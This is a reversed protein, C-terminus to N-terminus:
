GGFLQDWAALVLRRTRYEGHAKIDKEKLVRFTESPYDSGMVDAPDLIYRLENRSLGYAHAYFADLEARLRARREENWPFPPGSHGLDKAWPPLAHSTYTLELIRPLIFNIAVEGYASPPLVPLQKYIFLSMDTGGIKQRACFDYVLCSLNALLLAIRKTDQNCEPLMLPMKHSVGALPIVTAIVTRKNRAKTTNRWGVLWPRNWGQSDLLATVEEVPVWYRPIPEWHPNAKQTTTADETKGSDTFSAWRHDLQHIMKAEYLPLYRHTRQPEPASTKDGAVWGTGDPVYGEDSLATATRFHNSDSTMNFLGQRFGIGWPNGQTGKREDILIPVNGYIRATLEGDLRSRFVPATRTNPNIAIIQQPSLTFSCGADALQAPDTLFFAFQAEEEQHGITLLCFKISRHVRTFLGDRNEFDVLSALRNGKILHAFFSLLTQVDTAIGTQVVVGVRTVASTPPWSPLYPMTHIMSAGDPSPFAGRRGGRGFENM